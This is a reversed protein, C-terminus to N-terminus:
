AADDQKAIFAIDRISHSQWTGQMDKFGQLSSRSDKEEENEIIDFIMM